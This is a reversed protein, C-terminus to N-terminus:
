SVWKSEGRKAVMTFFGKNWAESHFGLWALWKLAQDHEEHVCVEIEEFREFLFQLVRISSRTFRVKATEIEETTLLWAQCRYSFLSGSSFGWVAALRDHLYVASFDDSLRISNAIAESPRMRGALCEREDAERLRINELDIDKSVSLTM